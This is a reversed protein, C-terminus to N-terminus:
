FWGWIQNWLGPQPQDHDSTLAKVYRVMNARQFDLGYFDARRRGLTGIVHAVVDHTITDNSELTFTSGFAHALRRTYNKPQGPAVTLFRWNVPDMGHLAFYGNMLDPTDKEPNATITIFEVRDKMLTRNISRQVGALKESQLPCLETCHADIFNLIVVKGLFDSPHWLKGATDRLTFDPTPKDFIQVYQEQKYFEDKFKQLTHALLPTAAVAVLMALAALRNLNMM